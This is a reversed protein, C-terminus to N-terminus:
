HVRVFYNLPNKYGAIRYRGVDRLKGARVLDLVVARARVPSLGWLKALDYVNAAGKPPTTGITPVLDAFEAALAALSKDGVIVTDGQIRKSLSPM